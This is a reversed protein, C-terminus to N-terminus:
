ETVQMSGAGGPAGSKGVRREESRLQIRSLPRVQREGNLFVAAAQRAALSAEVVPEFVGTPVARRPPYVLDGVGAPPQVGPFVVVGSEGGEVWPIRVHDVDRGVRVGDRARRGDAAGIALAVG